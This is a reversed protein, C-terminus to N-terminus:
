KGVIEALIDTKNQRAGAKVFYEWGLFKEALDPPLSVFSNNEDFQTRHCKLAAIKADLHKRVDLRTTITSSAAGFAAPEIGWANFNLGRLELEQALALMLDEPFTAYYVAPSFDRNLNSSLVSKTLEYVAIHDPHWYLGDAGFTIIVEPQYNNITEGLLKVIEPANTWALEGDPYNFCEVTKAGLKNGAARLETRRVAGLSERTALGADAIFGLEGSTLCIIITELGKESCAKLTGGAVLSEDDPHAFIALVRRATFNDKM